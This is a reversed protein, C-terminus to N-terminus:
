TSSALRELAMFHSTRPQIGIAAIRTGAAKKRETSDDSALAGFPSV